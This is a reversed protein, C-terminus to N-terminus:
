LGWIASSETVCVYMGKHNGQIAAEIPSKKNFLDNLCEQDPLLRLILSVSDKLGAKAALYLTSEEDKNTCYSLRPDNHILCESIRIWSGHLSAKGRKNELFSLLAEHLATNGRKNKARLLTAEEGDLQHHHRHVRVLAEVMSVQGSKAALHLPTEGYFNNSLALYPQTAIIFNAINLRGRKAAVHLFTNGIPTSRTLIDHFNIHNSTSIQQLLRTFGELNGNKAALYLDQDKYIETAHDDANSIRISFARAEEDSRSWIRIPVVDDGRSLQM